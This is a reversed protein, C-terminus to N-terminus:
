LGCCSLKWGIPSRLAVWRLPYVIWRLPTSSPNDNRVLGGEMEEWKVLQLVESPLTFMKRQRLVEIWRETEPMRAQAYHDWWCPLGYWYAVVVAKLPGVLRTHSKHIILHLSKMWLFWSVHYIEVLSLGIGQAQCLAQSLDGVLPLAVQLDHKRTSSRVLAKLWGPLPTSPFIDVTSHQSEQLDEWILNFRSIFDHSIMHFYIYFWGWVDSSPWWNADGGSVCWPSSETSGLLLGISWLRKRTAATTRLLLILPLGPDFLKWLM